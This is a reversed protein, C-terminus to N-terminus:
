VITCNQIGVGFPHECDFILSIWQQSESFFDNIDILATVICRYTDIYTRKTGCYSVDICDGRYRLIAPMPAPGHLVNSVAFRARRLAGDTFRKYGSQIFDGICLAKSIAFLYPCRSVSVAM